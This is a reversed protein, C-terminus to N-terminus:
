SGRRDALDVVTAGAKGAGREGPGDLPLAEVFVLLANAAARARRLDGGNLADTVAM